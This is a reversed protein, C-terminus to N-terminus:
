LDTLGTEKLRVIKERIAEKIFESKSTYGMKGTEIIHDVLDLLDKPLGVTQWDEKAM